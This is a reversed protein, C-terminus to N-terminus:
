LATQTEWELPRRDKKDIVEYPPPKAEEMAHNDHSYSTKRHHREAREKM